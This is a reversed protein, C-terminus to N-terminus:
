PFVDAAVCVVLVILVVATLLWARVRRPRDAASRSPPQPEGTDVERLVDRAAPVDSAAVLVERPGAALFEPVDFGPARRVVSEVDSLRLLGQLLEAEAEDGACAVKVLETPRDTV